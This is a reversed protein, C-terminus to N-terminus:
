TYVYIKKLKIRLLKWMKPGKFDSHLIILLIKYYATSKKKKTICIIIIHLLKWPRLNQSIDYNAWHANFLNGLNNQAM